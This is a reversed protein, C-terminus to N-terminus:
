EYNVYRFTNFRYTGNGFQIAPASFKKQQSVFVLGIIGGPFGNSRTASPMMAKLIEPPVVFQGESGQVRCEFSSVAQGSAPSVPSIGTVYVDVESTPQWTLNRPSNRNVVSGIEERNLWRLQSPVKITVSTATAPSTQTTSFTYEIPDWYISPIGNSTFTGGFLGISRQPITQLNIGPFEGARQMTFSGVDIPIPFFVDRLNEAGSRAAQLRCSGYPLFSGVQMLSNLDRWRQFQASISDSSIEPTPAGPLYTTLREMTVVGIGLNGERAFTEMTDAPITVPEDECTGGNPMVSMNVIKSMQEGAVVYVPVACGQIGAPVRFNIQDIGAGASAGGRGAYEIIAEKGGVMVRVGASKNAVAPANVDDQDIAGLGTGWMTIVQNHRASNVYTNLSQGPNDFNFLVGPGFGQQNTTFASFQREVIRLGSASGQQGNNSVIIRAEGLPTNSPILGAVQRDSVYIPIADIPGASSEIRMSVGSLTKQLPFAQQFTVTKPGLGAGFAVFMSGRALGGFPTEPAAYSAASVPTGDLAPAQGLAQNLCGLFVLGASVLSRNGIVQQVGNEDVIFKRLGIVAGSNSSM